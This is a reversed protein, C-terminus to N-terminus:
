SLEGFGDGCIVVDQCEVGVVECCQEGDAVVVDEVVLGLLCAGVELAGVGEGGCGVEGGEEGLLGGGRAALRGAGIERFYWCLAFGRKRGGRLSRMGRSELCVLSTPLHAASGRLARNKKCGIASRRHRPTTPRLGLFFVTVLRLAHAAVARRWGLGGM